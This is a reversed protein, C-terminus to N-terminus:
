AGIVAKIRKTGNAKERFKRRRESDIFRKMAQAKALDIEEMKWERVIAMNCEVANNLARRQSPDGWDFRFWEGSSAYHALDLHVALEVKRAQDRSMCKMMAARCIKIPCGTQVQTVRGYPDDSVGVKVYMPGDSDRAMFLYLYTRGAAWRGNCDYLEEARM